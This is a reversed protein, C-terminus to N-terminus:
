RALLGFAWDPLQRVLIPTEHRFFAAFNTTKRRSAPNWDPLRPIQFPLNMKELIKM